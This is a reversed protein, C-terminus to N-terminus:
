YQRMRDAPGATPTEAAAKYDACQVRGDRSSKGRYMLQDVFSLAEDVSLTVGNFTGIGISLGIPWGRERFLDDCSAACREIALRATEATCEPLIVAFEDGGLRGITDIRRLSTALVGCIQQLALDGVSHGLSDNLKKFNNIDIYALSFPRQFRSSRDIENALSESIARRNSCNTLPDSHSLERERLLSRRAVFVLHTVIVFIGLRMLANWYPSPAARDPYGNVLDAFLWLLAGSMALFVGVYRGGAWTALMIPFLYLLAIGLEYSSILDIYGILAIALIATLVSLAQTKEVKRM